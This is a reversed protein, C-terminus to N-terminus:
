SSPMEQMGKIIYVWDVALHNTDLGTFLLSACSHSIYSCNIKVTLTHYPNFPYYTTSNVFLRHLGSININSKKILLWVSMRIVTITHKQQPIAHSKNAVALCHLVQSNFTPGPIM